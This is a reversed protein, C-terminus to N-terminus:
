LMFLVNVQIDGNIDNGYIIENPLSTQFTSLIAESDEAMHIFLGCNQERIYMAFMDGRRLSSIQKVIKKPDVENVCHLKRM